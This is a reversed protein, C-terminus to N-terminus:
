HRNQPLNSAATGKEGWCCIVHVEVGLQTSFTEALYDAFTLNVAKRITSNPYM